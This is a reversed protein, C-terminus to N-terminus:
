SARQAKTWELFEDFLSFVSISGDAHDDGGNLMLEYFRKHAAERDPGLNFRRGGITVFWADRDSRFWPKPDRSM